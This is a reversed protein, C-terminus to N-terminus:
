SLDPSTPDTRLVLFYVCLTLVSVVVTIVGDVLFLWKWGELGWFGQMQLIGSAM